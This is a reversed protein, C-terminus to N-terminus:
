LARDFVIVVFTQQIKTEKQNGTPCDLFHRHFVTVDKIHITMKQLDLLPFPQPDTSIMISEGQQSCSSSNEM